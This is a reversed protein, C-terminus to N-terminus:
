VSFRGSKEGSFRGRHQHRGSDMTVNTELDELELVQELPLQRINAPNTVDHMALVHRLRLQRNIMPSTVDSALVYMYM